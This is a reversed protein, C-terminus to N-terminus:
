NRRAVSEKLKIAERILFVFYKTREAIQNFIISCFYLIFIAIGAQILYERILTEPLTAQFYKEYILILAASMAIFISIVGNKNVDGILAKGIDPLSITERELTNLTYNLDIMDYKQLWSIFASEKDIRKALKVMHEGFSNYVSMFAKFTFVIFLIYFPILFIKCATSLTALTITENEVLKALICLILFTGILYALLCGVPLLFNKRLSFIWSKKNKRDWRSIEFLIEKVCVANIQNTRDLDILEDEILM